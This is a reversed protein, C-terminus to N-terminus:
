GNGLRYETPTMGYHQRFRECFHSQSCFQLRAAIKQVDLDTNRLLYAARGLRQRRIYNAPTEGTEQKFKRGLHGETYGAAAALDAPSLEEELHLEIYECCSRVQASYGATRCNHVRQVFDRQMLRTIEMVDSVNHTDEITQLYQDTMAYAMEPSLGGEIAARSFLVASTRGLNRIENLSSKGGMYGTSGIVSMKHMHANLHGIDGERVIRLMEQEAEYTGHLDQTPTVAAQRSMRERGSSRLDAIQIRQGTVCYHLMLAYEFARNFSIIPLRACFTEIKKQMAISFNMKALQTRMDQATFSGVFFPGLVQAQLPKETEFQPIVIWMMELENSLLIPTLSAFIDSKWEGTRCSEAFVLDFDPEQPCNSTVLNLESDYIWHYLTHCCLIMERFADVRLNLEMQPM